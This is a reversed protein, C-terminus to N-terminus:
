KYFLFILKKRRLFVVENVGLTYSRTKHYCQYFNYPMLLTYILFAPCKKHICKVFFFCKQFLCVHLGWVNWGMVWVYAYCRKMSFIIKLLLFTCLYGDYLLWAFLVFGMCVGCVLLYKWSKKSGKQVSAGRLWILLCLPFYIIVSRIGM